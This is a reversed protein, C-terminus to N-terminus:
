IIINSTKAKRPPKPPFARTNALPAAKWSPLGSLFSHWATEPLVPPEKNPGFIINVEQSYNTDGLNETQGFVNTPLDIHLGFRAL